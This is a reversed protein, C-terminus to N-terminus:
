GLASAVADILADPRFPKSILKFRDPGFTQQLIGAPVQGSMFLIRAKADRALLRQALEIGNVEPMLIDCLALCFPDAEAEAYSALAEKANDVAHVRFGARELTTAVFQLIMPDDDVVLIRENHMAADPRVPQTLQRTPNLPADVRCSVCGTREEAAPLLLRVTTGGQPRSLLDLGGRHATLIGYAMALGFGGKRPKTSFFPERFLQRRAEPTLGSGDDSVCIEVHQGPRVDGFVERAQLANVHLTRLSVDIVGKAAIAERANDFVIALVQRLADADVAVAPLDCSLDFRLQVNASLQGALRKEEGALVAAVRCSRPAAVLRRAFTRLQDTYVAGNQAGRHIETLYTHLPSHFSLPQSLGLESFGLIGTLINGFDHALRRVLRASAQLREQRIGRDLTDLTSLPSHLTSIFSMKKSEINWGIAQGAMVLLTEESESWNRRADDELWLLWGGLEPTGFITALCGGRKVVPLHCTTKERGEGREGRWEHLPLPLTTKERGEGRERRWEHLPEGDPYTAMGAAPASFAAVVAALLETLSSYEAGTSLLRHIFDLASRSSDLPPAEARIPTGVM